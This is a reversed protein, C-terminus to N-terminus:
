KDMGVMRAFDLIDQEMEEKRALDNTQKWIDRKQLYDYVKNPDFRYLQLLYEVRDFVDSSYKIANLRNKVQRPDGSNRLLFALVARVNRCRDIRYIEEGNIELGPFIVPLLGLKYHNR